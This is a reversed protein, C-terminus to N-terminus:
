QYYMTDIGVSYKKRLRESWRYLQSTIQMSVAFTCGWFLFLVDSKPIKKEMKNTTWGNGYTRNPHSWPVQRFSVTDKM